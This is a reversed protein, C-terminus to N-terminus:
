KTKQAELVAVRGMDTLYFCGSFGFAISLVLVAAALLQQAEKDM